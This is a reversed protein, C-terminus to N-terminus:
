ATVQKRIFEVGRQYVLTKLNIHSDGQSDTWSQEVVRFYGRDQFERYPINRGDLVNKARLIEFIKNRGLGPINLAAAVDRMQLATKSDAVADFFAAKPELEANRNKLQENDRLLWAMVEAAKQKMELDTTAGVVETTPLMHRKIEVVQQENLYTPVGNRMLEPFLERIHKKIAEPDVGLVEAVERVTMRKDGFLSLDNM